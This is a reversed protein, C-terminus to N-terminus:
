MKAPHRKIGTSGGSDSPKTDKIAKTSTAGSDLMAAGYPARIACRSDLRCSSIAKPNNKVTADSRKIALRSYHLKAAKRMSGRM